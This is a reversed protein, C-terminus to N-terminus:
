TRLEEQQVQLEENLQQTEELMDQLRRRYRASELSAGLIASSAVLLEGDRDQLERMWGLEIVGVLQGEHEIPALRVSRATAQGLGSSVKMYGDPVDALALPRRQRACEAVLTRDAPLRDGTDGDTAPWGWAAARTFGGGPHQVYVAGVVSELYGSLMELAAHAVGKLEQETSLRESLDSQGQRLWAQAALIARQREQEALATEFTDSLNMLDNRGRWALLGGVSLMFLVFATVTIWTNRNATDTREQRLARETAIFADFEDRVADKLQKGRGARTTPNYNPDSRRANIREDAIVDWEDQYAKIRALRQVQMTNDAVETRLQDLEPRWQARYRAFNELFRDDGGLLFGRV